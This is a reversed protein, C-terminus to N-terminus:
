GEEAGKQSLKIAAGVSAADVWLWDGKGLIPVLDVPCGGQRAVIVHGRYTTRKTTRLCSQCYSM